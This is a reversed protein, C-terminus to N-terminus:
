EYYVTVLKAIDVHRLYSWVVKIQTGDPLTQRVEVAPHSLDTARETLLECHEFGDVIQWELINREELREVAHQGVIYRGSLVLNRISDFLQPL